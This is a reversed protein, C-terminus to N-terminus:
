RAGLYAWLWLAALAAEPAADLLYVKPITGRAVYVVDIAALAAASGAALVVIEPTIRGSRAALGIAAGIVTVLVGVTRVLWLDRKPGTVAMFSRIHVVPWVGTLVYYVAQVVALWSLFRPM